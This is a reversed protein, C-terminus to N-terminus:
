HVQIVNLPYKMDYETKTGASLVRLTYSEFIIAHVTIFM